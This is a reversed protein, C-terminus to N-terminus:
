NDPPNGARSAALPAVLQNRLSVGDMPPADIDGNPAALLDLVTPTVDILRAAPITRGPAIGPGAFCLMANMDAASVGGHGGAWRPRLTANDGAFVAIDGTRSADFLRLIQPPLDPYDTDATARLWDDAAAWADAGGLKACVDDGYGLVARAVDRITPPADGSEIELRIRPSASTTNQVVTLAGRRSLVRVRERSSRYCILDIGPWTLMPDGADFIIREIEARSPRETWSKGARLFVLACRDAGIVAVADSEEVRGHPAPAKSVHLGRRAELMNEFGVSRELPTAVAGHDSVLVRYVRDLLGATELGDIVRGIQEDVHRIADRYDDSDPSDRHAIEDVAPFYVVTLRPWVGGHASALAPLRTTENAARRDVAAFAGFAWDLGNEVPNTITYDAGRDNGCHINVTFADALRTHITAATLDRNVNRYAFASTYDVIRGTERNFWQNGLIGHEAPWCGTLISATNTYTVSPLSSIAHRVRVGGDIFRRQINPLEGRALMEDVVAPKLGDVFFIMASPAVADHQAPTLAFRIPTPACGFLLTAAIVALLRASFDRLGSRM